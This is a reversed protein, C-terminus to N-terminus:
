QFSCRFGAHEAGAWLVIIEPKRHRCMNKRWIEKLVLLSEITPEFPMQHAHTTAMECSINITKFQPHTGFFFASLISSHTRVIATGCLFAPLNCSVSVYKERHGNVYAVANRYHHPIQIICVSRYFKMLNTDHQQIDIMGCM